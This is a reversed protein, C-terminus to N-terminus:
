PAYGDLLTDPLAMLAPGDTWLIECSISYDPYIKRLVARYAAMQRLYIPAVSDIGGPAPRNSKYDVIRVTKGDVVLRDVQGSVVRDAIRGVVPVEAKSGPGFLAAFAPDDLVALSVDAIEARAADDLGHAPRALYAEAAGSREGAPLDPLAQLLAHILVGRRFAAGKDEGLPSRPPPEDEEPRSPSLPRPPVEEPPPPTTAWAPLPAPAPKFEAADAKREVPAAQANQMRLAEGAGVPAPINDVAAEAHGLGDQVLAHWNGETPARAGHWGCVYLRDEARTMAVYLLRREERASADKARSRLAEAQEERYAARPPWLVLGDEAWLLADEGRPVRATDPLFVIPAQLGKSGHVTMVRVEDRTAQELDRKIPTDDLALWHLFHQLSPPHSREFEMARAMFEDLPDAAEAGLRALIKRRGGQASLVEAYLEFPPAYDARAMLASLMAHADRWDDREGAHARLANWLTEGRARPQALDYLSQEDLGILPGKLVTALTLDDEPLLLVEGLAMLDRVALQQGLVMRDVGAVDVGQQKLARVMEDVFADRRRVLIMIDGPRIPRGRSELERGEKLWRDILRALSGALRASPADGDRRQVPPTWADPALREEPALLPWLEAVGAQGARFPIHEVTEDPQAVGDRAEPRAFVADVAALVSPTSRFSIDLDVNRWTLGAARARAQFHARMDEFADPDARQFSYISQKADGVAFVTRAGPRAGEGAFFEEALAAVIEWQEPNTDQAEDILIHDIGGDLKFMVWSAGGDKLLLDRARLILDDYDLLGHARKHKEYDTLLAQGLRLLAATAGATVLARLRLDVEVLRAAERVLAQEAAPETELVAKTAPRAYPQMSATLYARGYAPFMTARDAVSAALWAAMAEGKDKDTKSGALLAEAARRLAPGDFADEDCAAAVIGEATEDEMAGLLFRIRAISRELVGPGVTLARLRARESSLRRLMDDFEEENVRATIEALAEALAADGGARARLLLANRAETLAEDADQEDMLRFHPALGAELPFRGLLSECFAHITQIKMGGPADLVRAFLARARRLLAADAPADLLDELAARLKDEPMTAWKGLADNVRNAMEAAAARTFTLCLLRFPETGTVLLALVRDTLVKTKGTGASASVWVSANPDAARRQRLSAELGPDRAGSM